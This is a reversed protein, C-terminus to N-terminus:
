NGGAKTIRNREIEDEPKHDYSMEVAKGKSSLICRSDGANGCYITGKYM